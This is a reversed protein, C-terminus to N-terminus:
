SQKFPLAVGEEIAEVGRPCAWIISAEATSSVMSEVLSLSRTALLDRVDTVESASRASCFTLRRELSPVNRFGSEEAESREEVTGEECGDGFTILKWEGFREVGDEAAM